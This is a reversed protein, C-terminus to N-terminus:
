QLAEAMADAVIEGIEQSADPSIGLFSRKPISQDRSGFQHVAAYIVNSGVYAEDKTFGSAISNALRGTDRLIQGGQRRKPPNKLPEWAEGEPSKQDRFALQADAELTGAIERMVPSLDGVVRALRALNSLAPEAQLTVSFM